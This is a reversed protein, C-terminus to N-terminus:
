GLHRLRRLEKKATAVLVGFVARAMVAHPSTDGRTWRGITPRSVKLLRALELDNLGIVKQAHAILHCFDESATGAAAGEMEAVLAEFARLRLEGYDSVVLDFSQAERELVDSM